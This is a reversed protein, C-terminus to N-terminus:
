AASVSRRRRTWVLAGAGIVSAGVPLLVALPAEPVVPTPQEPEPEPEVCNSPESWFWGFLWAVQDNWEGGNRVFADRQAERISPPCVPPPPACAAAVTALAFPLLVAVLVPRFPRRHRSRSPLTGSASAWERGM